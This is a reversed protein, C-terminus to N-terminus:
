KLHNLIIIIDRKAEKRSSKRWDHTRGPTLSDHRVSPFYYQLIQARTFEVIYSEVTTYIYIDKMKNSRQDLPKKM